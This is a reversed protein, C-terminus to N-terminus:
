EKRQATKLATRAPQPDTDDGFCSRKIHCVSCVAYCPRMIDIPIGSNASCDDCVPVTM